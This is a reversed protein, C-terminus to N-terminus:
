IKKMPPAHPPCKERCTYRKTQRSIFIAIRLYEVMSLSSTTSLCLCSSSFTQTMSAQHYSDLTSQSSISVGPCRDNRCGCRQCCVLWVGAVGRWVGLWAGGYNDCRLWMKARGTVDGGCRAVTGVSWGCGLLTM